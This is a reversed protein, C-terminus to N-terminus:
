MVELFYDRRKCIILTTLVPVSIKGHRKVVESIRKFFRLRKQEDVEIIKPYTNLLKPYTQDDYNYTILYKRLFVPYFIPNQVVEQERSNLKSLVGENVDTVCSEDPYTDSLFENYAKNM